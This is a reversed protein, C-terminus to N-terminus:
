GMKAVMAVVLGRFEADTLIKQLVKSQIAKLFEPHTVFVDLMAGALNGFNNIETAAASLKTTLDNNAVILGAAQAEITKTAAEAKKLSAEVRALEVTKGDLRSELDAILEEATPPTPEKEEIPPTDQTM